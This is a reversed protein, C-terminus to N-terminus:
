SQTERPDKSLFGANKLADLIEGVKEAPSMRSHKAFMELRFMLSNDVNPKEMDMNQEALEEMILQKLRETTLKM